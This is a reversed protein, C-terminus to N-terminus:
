EIETKINNDLNDLFRFDGEDLPYSEMFINEAVVNDFEELFFDLSNSYVNINNEGTLWKQYSIIGVALILVAAIAYAPKRLFLPFEIKKATKVKEKKSLVNLRDEIEKIYSDWYLEDRELTKANSIINNLILFQGFEEKCAECREIHVSVKEKNESNIDNKLFGTFYKRVAKCKM